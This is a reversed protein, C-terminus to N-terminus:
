SFILSDDIPTGEQSEIYMYFGIEIEKPNLLKLKTEVIYEDESFIVKIFEEKSIIKHIPFDIEDKLFANEEDNICRQFAAKARLFSGELDFQEFRKM